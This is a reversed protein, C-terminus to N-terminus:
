FQKASFPPNSSGLGKLTRHASCAPFASEDIESELLPAPENGLGDPSEKLARSKPSSSLRLTPDSEKV